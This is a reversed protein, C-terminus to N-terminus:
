QLLGSMLCFGSTLSGLWGLPSCSFTFVDSLFKSVFLKFAWQLGDEKFCKVNACYQAHYLSTLGARCCAVGCLGSLTTRMAVGDSSRPVPSSDIKGYLICILSSRTTCRDAAALGKRHVGWPLKASSISKLTFSREVSGKTCQRWQRKTKMSPNHDFWGIKSKYKTWAKEVQFSSRGNQSSFIAFFSTSVTSRAPPPSSVLILQTLRRILSWYTTIQADNKVHELTSQKM